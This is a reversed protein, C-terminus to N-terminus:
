QVILTLKQAVTANGASATVTLTYTGPPTVAPNTPQTGGTHGGGGCGIAAALMIFASIACLMRTSLRLQKRLLLLVPVSALSLLDLGAMMINSHQPLYAAQSAITLVMVTFNGSGGAPLNLTAPAVSCSANQPAGTCALSVAGSLGTGGSLTLNYIATMGSSVTVTTSSGSGPSITAQETGNGTLSVAQPSDSANDTIAVTGTRQGTATPTFIVSVQCAANIALTTGCNNTQSFDGSAVISAVSLM